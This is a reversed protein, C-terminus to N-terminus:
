VSDNLFIVAGNQLVFDVVKDTLSELTRLRAAMACRQPVTTVAFENSLKLNQDVPCKSFGLKVGIAM